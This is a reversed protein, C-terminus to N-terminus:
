EILDTASALVTRPITLGLAKATKLNIALEYKSPQQVPLDAPKAGKLIPAVYQTALQSYLTSEPGYSILGGMIVSSRLPYMTPISHRAALAVIRHPLAFPFTGLILAGVRHEIMTAFAQEFDRHDRCEVILIELGLARGAELMLRTQEEYTIYNPTGTLFAVTIVQPVLERLLNLRKGALETGNTAIGTINAGPRNLSQVFGYKVPDGAFGFVIPITATASKVARVTGISGTALIVNPRLGVLEAALTALRTLQNYGWRYEITVSRGEVFGAEALSRGFAAVNGENRQPVNANLFGVLPLERQQAQVPLPWSAVAGGLLTIFERRKM